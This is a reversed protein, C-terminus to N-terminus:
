PEYGGEYGFVYGCKDCYYGTPNGPKWDAVQSCVLAEGECDCASRDIDVM